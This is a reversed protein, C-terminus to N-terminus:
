HPKQYGATVIPEVAPKANGVERRRQKRQWNDACPHTKRSVQGHDKQRNTDCVKGDKKGWVIERQMQPATKWPGLVSKNPYVSM